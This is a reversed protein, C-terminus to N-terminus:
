ARQYIQIRSNYCDSVYLRDDEGVCIGCAGNFQYMKNGFIKDGLRQIFVGNKRFVQVSLSDGVYMLDEAVHHFISHPYNFEGPVVSPEEKGWKSYFIGSEKKLVQVRNNSLDCIYLHTPDVTLGAPYQFIGDKLSSYVSGFEKLIKGDNSQCVFIQHAGQVTLYLINEDVKLGRFLMGFPDKPLKWSSISEFKFHPEFKINFITVQTKDVIYLLSHKEDIDVASPMIRGINQGIIDGNTNYTLIQNSGLGCVYVHQKFSRLGHCKDKQKWSM